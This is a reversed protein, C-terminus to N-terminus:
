GQGARKRDGGEDYGVYGPPAGILRSVAHKEMYESMDIRIMAREDDFLFEALARATETKGVGTPGLFLFSGIPRQEDGLGARSRRVADAVAVLADRQGIGRESLNDEIALLKEMESRLMKSVPVGTWKSVIEAIDEDTVEEKLYSGGEQIRALESRAAELRQEAAPVEGYQIEAARGLNGTRAALEQKTRLEEIMRKEEQVASIVEREKRWQAKKVDRSATLEALEHSLAELRVKSSKGKERKLAQQETQLQILKREDQDIEYPMSDIEMKIKSAAEDVLDIAKDPLFRETIYRTSLTVAAVLAADQIRIGHHVEYREKLGRLIAITDGVTPQDVMVPQFRRELAADKEIHKRYETLTTAGIARVEGRA